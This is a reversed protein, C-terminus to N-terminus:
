LSSRRPSRARTPRRKRSPTPDGRTRLIEDLLRREEPSLQARAVAVAERVVEAQTRDWMAALGNVQALTPLDIRVNLQALRTRRAIRRPKGNTVM